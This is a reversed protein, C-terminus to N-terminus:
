KLGKNLTVSLDISVSYKEYMPTPLLSQTNINVSSFVDSAKDLSTKIQSAANDSIAYAQLKLVSGFSTSSLDLTDIIVGTPLASGISALIKSYNIQNAVVTNQADQLKNRYENATALQTSSTNVSTNSSNSKSSNKATQLAADNINYVAFCGIGLLLGSSALIIIYRVIISNARAARIQSKLSVPLLNIM